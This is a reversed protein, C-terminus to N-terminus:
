LDGLNKQRPQPKAKIHELVKLATYETQMKGSEKEIQRVLLDLKVRDDKAFVIENAEVKEWFDRDQIEVYFLNEGDTMRWKNDEKFSLAVISLNMTLRSEQIVQETDEPSVFYRADESDIVFRQEPEKGTVEVYDIGSKRPPSSFREWASRSKPSVLSGAVYNNVINNNDGYQVISQNQTRETSESITATRSKIRRILEGVAFGGSGGWFLLELIQETSKPGEKFLNLARDFLEINQFIDADFGFSGKKFKSVVSVSVKFDPGNLIRNSEEVLDGLALLAPALERVDM